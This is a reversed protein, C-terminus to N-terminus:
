LLLFNGNYLELVRSSVSGIFYREIRSRHHRKMIVLDIGEDSLIENLHHGLDREFSPAVILPTEKASLLGFLQDKIKKLDKETDANIAQAVATSYERINGSYLGPFQQLLSIVKLKTGFIGSLEEAGRIIEESEKGGDVLAASHNLSDYNRIIFLPTELVSALKKAIDGFFYREIGSHKGGGVFVAGPKLLEMEKLVGASFDSSVQVNVEAVVGCRVAQDHLIGILDNRLNEQFNQDLAPVPMCLNLYFSLEAVHLLHIEGKTAHAFTRAALLAKDSGESFDSLVLIKPSHFM